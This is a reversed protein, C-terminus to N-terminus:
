PLCREAPSACTQGNDARGPRRVPDARGRREVMEGTWNRARMEAVLSLSPPPRPQHHHGSDDSTQSDANVSAHRPAPRSTPLSSSKADFPQCTCTTMDIPTARRCIVKTNRLNPKIASRTRMEVKDKDALVVIRPRRTRSQRGGARIHYHPNERGALILTHGRRCLILPRRLQRDPKM